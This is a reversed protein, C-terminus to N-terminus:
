GASSKYSPTKLEYGLGEEGLGNIVQFNLATAYKKALRDYFRKLKQTSAICLYAEADSNTYHFQLLDVVTDGLKKISAADTANTPPAFFDDSEFNCRLDFKVEYSNERYEIGLERAKDLNLEPTRVANPRSFFMM